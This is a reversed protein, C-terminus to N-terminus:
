IGSLRANSVRNSPPKRMSSCGSCNLRRSSNRERANSGSSRSCTLFLRNEKSAAPSTAGSFSTDHVIAVLAEGLYLPNGDHVLLRHQDVLLRSSTDYVSTRTETSFSLQRAGGTLELRTTTNLPYSTSFLGGRSTQREIVETLVTQGAAPDEILTAFGTRYPSISASVAWNWRHQKNVYVLQGGIDQIAGAAYVGIGLQRDGLVDSFSASMGGSIYTGFSSVGASFTPQSIMDLKLKRAYKETVPTASAVPLGRKSDSILAQVDGSATERGPLLAARRTAQPAVTQQIDAEDLVYISEGDDEFVSFALRGTAPAISLAPSSATIGAVGTLFSSVRTVPGGDIPMRYLNSIGDPDALFTVTKGDASIQPSLHKGGLFGSILREEVVRMVERATTVGELEVLVRLV